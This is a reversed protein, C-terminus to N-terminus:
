GLSPVRVVCAGSDPGQHSCEESPEEAFLLDSAVTVCLRVSLQTVRTSSSPRRPRPKEETLHQCYRPHPYSHSNFMGGGGGGIDLNLLATPSSPVVVRIEVIFVLKFFM